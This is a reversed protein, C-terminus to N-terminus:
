RAYVENDLLRFMDEKEFFIEGDDAKATIVIGAYPNQEVEIVTAATWDKRGTVQSSILVRDGTKM